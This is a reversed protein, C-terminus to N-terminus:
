EADEAAEIRMLPTEIPVQDGVNALRATVSGAFPARIEHEMKMAEVVFLLDGAAVSAGVDLPAAIVKGTMPARIAGDADQAGAGTSYASAEGAVLSCSDLDLYVRNGSIVARGSHRGGGSEFRIRTGEVAIVAIDIIEGALAVKFPGTRSTNISIAIQEGDINLRMPVVPISDRGWMAETDFGALLVAALAIARPSPPRATPAAFEEDIFGTTAGGGAFVPHSLAEILFRRNNAPGLLVTEELAGILRQRALARSEGWAIVKALMPDYFPSVAQGSVIGADCRVHEGIPPEWAEIMGAAPLFDNAPDEAYLRVEIAHGTLRVDEQALPLEEGAAVLLQLAVLDLGTVMETVPHEVQLRTNMELFYFNREADVLFEVTGAGRYDVAKAAAVAADGMAKRLDANVFPSPAEEIVKQHRRQVSCDREGLHIAKGHADAFIQIEIHRAGRLLKELLVEDSGFASKAESRASKLADAFAKASEVARMGRGGGGAAAKIMLPFGIKGAERKLSQADQAGAYGPVVPVGAAAMKEKARRKDGMLAIAEADPGIFVLGAASCARAFDANEALFGYGPHIAQAGTIRAAEILREIVLYSQAAPAPGIAVAQDCAAVHPADRDAESFVAVTRYGFARATRAIRVAIEGRNAILIKTFTPNKKMAAM